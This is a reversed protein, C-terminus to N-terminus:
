LGKIHSKQKTKNTWKTQLYIDLGPAEGLGDQGESSSLSPSSTTNWALATNELQLAM